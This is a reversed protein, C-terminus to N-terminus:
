RRLRSRYPPPPLIRSSIVMTRRTLTGVTPANRTTHRWCANICRPYMAVARHVYDFVLAHLSIAKGAASPTLELLSRQSLKIVLSDTDWDDLSATHSWLMELAAIPTTEDPPFVALELFRVQEDRKRFKVSADIANWINEHEVKAAHPDKIRDIRSTRLQELVKAWAFGHRILGGCLM